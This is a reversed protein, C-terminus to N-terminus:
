RRVTINILVPTLSVPNKMGESIEICGGKRAPIFVMDETKCWRPNRYVGGNRTSITFM